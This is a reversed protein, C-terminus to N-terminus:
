NVAKNEFEERAKYFESLKIESFGNPIDSNELRESTIKMYYTDNSKFFSWNFGAYGLSSFYERPTPHYLNIVIEEKVCENQFEKSIISNSRFSRLGNNKPKSLTKGFKSIDNETPEIYLSIDSKSYEKFPQNVFGNGRIMYVTTEINHKKFFANIFDKQNDLEQVYNEYAKIFESEKSVMFSKEM